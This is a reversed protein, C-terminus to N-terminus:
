VLSKNVVQLGCDSQDCLCPDRCTHTLAELQAQLRLETLPEQSRIVCRYGKFKEEAVAQMTTWVTSDAQM